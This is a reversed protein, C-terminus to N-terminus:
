PQEKATAKQIVNAGLYGGLAFMALTLYAGQDLKGALLLGTFTLFALLALLFKRSAFRSETM